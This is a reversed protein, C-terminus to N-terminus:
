ENATKIMNGILSPQLKLHDQDFDENLYTQLVPSISDIVERNGAKFILVEIKKM